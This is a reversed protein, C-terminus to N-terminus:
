VVAGAETGTPLPATATAEIAASLASEAAVPVSVKSASFGLVIVKFM